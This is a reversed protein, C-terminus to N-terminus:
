SGDNTGRITKFGKSVLDKYAAEYADKDVVAREGQASYIVLIPESM